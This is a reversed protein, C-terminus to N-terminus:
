KDETASSKGITIKPLELSLIQKVRDFVAAPAITLFLLAVGGCMVGAFLYILHRDLPTPPITPQTVSWLFFGGVGAIALGVLATLIRAFM